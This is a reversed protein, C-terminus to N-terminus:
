DNEFDLKRLQLSQKNVEICPVEYTEYNVHYPIDEYFLSFGLSKTDATLETTGCGERLLADVQGIYNLNDKFLCPEIKTHSTKMLDVYVREKNNAVKNKYQSTKMEKLNRLNWQNKITGSTLEPRLSLEQKQKLKKNSKEKNNEYYRDSAERFYSLDFVKADIEKEVKQMKKKSSKVFDCVTMLQINKKKNEIIQKKKQLKKERTQLLQIEKQRKQFYLHKRILIDDFCIPVNDEEINESKSEDDNQKLMDLLIFSDAHDCVLSRHETRGITHNSYSSDTRVFEKLDKQSEIFLTRCCKHEILKYIKHLKHLFSRSQFILILHVYIPAIVSLICNIDELLLYFSTEDIDSYSVDTFDFCFVGKSVNIFSNRYSFLPFSYLFKEIYLFLIFRFQASSMYKYLQLHMFEKIHFRFLPYLVPYSGNTSESMFVDTCCHELCRMLHFTITKISHIYLCQQHEEYYCRMLDIMDSYNALYIKNEETLVDKKERVLMLEKIKHYVHLLKKGNSIKLVELAYELAEINQANEQNKKQLLEM